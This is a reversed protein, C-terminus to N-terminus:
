ARRRGLSLVELSSLAAGVHISDGHAHLRMLGSGPLCDISWRPDIRVRQDFGHNFRSGSIGDIHVVDSSGALRVIAQHSRCGVVDIRSYGSDHPAGEVPMLVLGDFNEEPVAWDQRWPLARFEELTMEMISKM